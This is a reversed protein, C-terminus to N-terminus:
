RSEDAQRNEDFGARTAALQRPPDHCAFCSAASTYFLRKGRNLSGHKMATKALEGPTAELLEKELAVNNIVEPAELDEESMLEKELPHIAALEEPKWFTTRNSSEARVRAVTKADVPSARNGWTNRVFTLVDAMEQDNLLDRFATMPPVGRSPDYIRGRVQMKGWMGHLALKILREESGTVWPSGVLPPYVSGSGQGRTQHCTSCHAERQFIQGGRRYSAHLERDLHRPPRYNVVHMEPGAVFNAALKTDFKTWFHRVTKAAVSAHPVESAVLKSLLEDNTVNHQQHLWLAELLHHAETEDNPDFDKAWAQAAMIVAESDRASLEIRTRHRVGDVPHKLNELLKDIPQGYIAVPEQLPRDKVTLRLIRGHKHDRSPDRINHQMHGIIM